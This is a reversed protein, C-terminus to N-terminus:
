SCRQSCSSQQTTLCSTYAVKPKPSFEDFIQINDGPFPDKGITRDCRVSIEQRTFSRAAASVAAAASICVVAQRSHSALLSYDNVALKCFQM